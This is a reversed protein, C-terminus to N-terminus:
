GTAWIRLRWSGAGFQAPNNKRLERKEVLERKGL